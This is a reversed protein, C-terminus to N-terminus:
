ILVLLKQVEDILVASVSNGWFDNYQKILDEITGFNFTWLDALNSRYYTPYNYLPPLTNSVRKDRWLEVVQMIHEKHTM